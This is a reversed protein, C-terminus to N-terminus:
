LPAAVQVVPESFINFILDVSSMQDEESTHPQPSETASGTCFASKMEWFNRQVNDMYTMPTPFSRRSWQTWGTVPCGWTRRRSCRWLLCRSYEVGLSHSPNFQLQVRRVSGCGAQVTRESEALVLLWEARQTCLPLISCGGTWNQAQKPAEKSFLIWRERPLTGIFGPLLAEIVANLM